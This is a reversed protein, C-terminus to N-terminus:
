PHSQAAGPTKGAPNTRRGLGDADAGPEPQGEAAEGDGGSPGPHERCIFFISVAAPHALSSAGRHSFCSEMFGTPIPNAVNGGPQPHVDQSREQQQHLSSPVVPHGGRLQEAGRSSVNGTPLYFLDSGDWLPIHSHQLMGVRARVRGTPSTRCSSPWPPRM